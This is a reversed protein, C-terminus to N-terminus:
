RGWREPIPELLVARSAGGRLGRVVGVICGRNNLDKPYFLEGPGAPVCGHLSILGHTPDQLYCEIRYPFLTKGLIRPGATRERTILVQNADNIAWPCAETGWWMPEAAGSGGHWMVVGQTRASALSYGVVCGNENVRLTGRAPIPVGASTAGKAADLFLAGTQAYLIIQGANNITCARGPGLDQMGRTRDWLFVHHVAGGLAITGVVQGVDNIAHAQSAIGTLTGLLQRGGNPDWLFAQEKGDPGAMTGVIQGMSNIDLYNPLVLGLDQMGSQRDWLFLHYQGDQAQTFGVIQGRDNITQANLDAGGPSPVFTAKYLAPSRRTWLALCATLVLVASLVAITRLRRKM